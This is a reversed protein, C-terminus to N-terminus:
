LTPEWGPEYSRTWMRHAKANESVIHGTTPDIDLLGGSEQAINGLHALLNSTYGGEIDANLAEDERIANAFNDMHMDTLSGGGVVDTTGSSGNEKVHKIEKNDMDYAYYDLRDLLVTGKTGHITVGRGRKHHPHPNCSRGEWTILKGGEFEFNALQTDYFEWDDDYAYRGGTSSVRTPYEVDLAYRCIDIEHTGNNNIEGTGWAWFWHWNYHVINDRFEERPAPGQFLNWDLWDPVPASKGRGISGRSNSYWAKGMYPTGIIGGRIDSIAEKTAHGSRQQNGMQIIANYKKQVNVLIEGEAPDYCCPKEVYVAKGAKAAMIAMPAHWHDPTAIAVADIDPNDLLRRFDGEEIAKPAGHKTIQEQRKDYTRRDVDCLHTISVNDVQLISDI